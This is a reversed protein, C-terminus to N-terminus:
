CPQVSVPGTVALNFTSNPGRLVAFVNAAAVVRVRDGNALEVVKNLSCGSVEHRDEAAALLLQEALSERDDGPGFPYAAPLRRAEVYRTPPRDRWDFLYAVCECAYGPAVYDM